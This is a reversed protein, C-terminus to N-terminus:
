RLMVMIRVLGENESGQSASDFKELAKGIVAGVMLEGESARMAVGDRSSAVLLDGPRIPGSQLCVRVYVQGAVAIPSGAQSNSEAGISIAPSLSGAGSVVGVVTRDYPRSSPSLKGGPVVAAVTGPRLTPGASEFQEAVDMGPKGTLTLKGNGNAEVSLMAAVESNKPDKSRNHFIALLGSGDSQTQLSGSIMDGVSRVHLYGGDDDSSGELVKKDAVFFQLAGVDV